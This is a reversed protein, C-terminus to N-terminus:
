QNNTLAITLFLLKATNESLSSTGKYLETLTLFLDDEITEDDIGSTELLEVIQENNNFIMRCRVLLKLVEDRSIKMGYNGKM